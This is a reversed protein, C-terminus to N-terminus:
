EADDRQVVDGVKGVPPAAIPPVFTISIKRFLYNIVLGIFLLYGVAVGAFCKLNYECFVFPSFGAIEKFTKM